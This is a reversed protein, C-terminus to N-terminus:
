DDEEQGLVSVVADAFGNEKQIEGRVVTRESRTFTHFKKIGKGEEM